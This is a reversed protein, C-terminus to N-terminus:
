LEMIPSLVLNNTQFYVSGWSLGVGFGCAIFEDDVSPRIRSCITLPISASSTNGYEDLCYPVKEPPIGLKKRIIENMYLNAQHFVFYDIKEIELNFKNVLKTVSEPAKTIGFSFVEMGDLVTQMRNRVIGDGENHMVLSDENFMNRYGGDRVIIAEFGSGDCGFHFDFGHEDKNYEVATVTGADGFLPYASKDEKSVGRLATDGALLLGKKMMGNSLLSAIVSLGYVWGSCGLSIDLAYINESFGLRDQILCSTAPILYDPTQTVFILCDIDQKRWGLDEILKDAAYICLDSTCQDQNSVRRQYVGTSKSFKEAEELTFGSYNAVLDIKKPVCVSIGSIKVNPISLFSM